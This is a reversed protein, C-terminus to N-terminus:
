HINYERLSKKNLSHTINAVKMLAAITSTNYSSLRNKLSNALTRCIPKLSLLQYKSELYQIKGLNKFTTALQENDLYKHNQNHSLWKIILTHINILVPNLKKLKILSALLINLSLPTFNEINKYIKESLLIFDNNKWLEEHTRKPANHANTSLKYALSSSRRNMDDLYVIRKFLHSLANLSISKETHLRFLKHIATEDNIKKILTMDLSHQSMIDRQQISVPGSDDNQYPEFNPHPLDLIKSEEPSVLIKKASQTRLPNFIKQDSIKPDKFGRIPAKSEPRPQSKTAGSDPNILNNKLFKLDLMPAKPKRDLGSFGRALWARSFVKKVFM